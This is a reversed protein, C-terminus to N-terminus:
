GGRRRARVRERISPLANPRGAWPRVLDPTPVTRPHADALCHDGRCAQAGPEQRGRLGRGLLHEGQDVLRADLVHDLLGHPGADGVDQDHGAPRLLGDLVVEVARGLQLRRELAAALEVEQGLHLGDGRHGVDVEDALVLRAPEAVGDPHSAVVDAVLGEGHQEGVVEHGLVGRDQGVHHRGVLAGARRHQRELAEPGLLDRGVPGDLGGAGDVLVPQHRDGAHHLLGPGALRRAVQRDEAAVHQRRSMKSQM